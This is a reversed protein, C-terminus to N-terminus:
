PKTTTWAESPWRTMGCECQRVRRAPVAREGLRFGALHAPERGLVLRGQARAAEAAGDRGTGNSIWLAPTRADLSGNPKTLRSGITMFCHNRELRDPRQLLWHMGETLTLPTRGRATIEVLAENPSWNALDDGRDLDHVLYVSSGPLDVGSIPAFATSTPWTRWSSAPSGTSSSSRRWSRLRGGGPVSSWSHTIGAPRRRPLPGSSPRRVTWGARARGLEILRDAQQHLTPLPALAVAM